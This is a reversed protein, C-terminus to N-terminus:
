SVPINLAAAYVSYCLDEPRGRGFPSASRLDKEQELEFGSVGMIALIFLLIKASKM